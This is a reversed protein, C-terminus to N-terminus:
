HCMKKVEEEIKLKVYKWRVNVGKAEMEEKCKITHFAANMAAM